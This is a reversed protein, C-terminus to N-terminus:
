GFCGLISVNPSTGTLTLITARINTFGEGNNFTANGNTASTISALNFWVSGNLSGQIECNITAVTGSNIILQFTSNFYASVFNFASGTITGTVANLLTITSTAETTYIRGLSPSTTGVTRIRDWNAGNYGYAPSLSFSAPSLPMGDGMTVVDPFKSSIDPNSVKLTGDTEVQLPYAKGDAGLAYIIPLDFRTM